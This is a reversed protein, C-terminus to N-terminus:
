NFNIIKYCKLQYQFRWVRSSMGDIVSCSLQIRQDPPAQITFSCGDSAARPLQQITGNAATSNTDRCVLIWIWFTNWRILYHATLVFLELIIVNSSATKHPRLFRRLRVLRRRQGIANSGIEMKSEPLFILEIATHRILRALNRNLVVYDPSLDVWM